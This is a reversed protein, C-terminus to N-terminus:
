PIKRIPEGFEIVEGRGCRRALRAERSEHPEIDIQRVTEAFLSLPIREVPDRPPDLGCAWGGLGARGVREVGFDGEALSHGCGVDRVVGPRLSDPVLDLVGKVADFLGASGEGLIPFDGEFLRHGYGIDCVVGPCLFEPVPDVVCEGADILGTCSKGTILVDGECLCLCCGIDRDM